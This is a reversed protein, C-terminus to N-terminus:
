DRYLSLFRRNSKYITALIYQAVNEISARDGKLPSRRKPRSEDSDSYQSSVILKPRGERICPHVYENLYNLIMERM